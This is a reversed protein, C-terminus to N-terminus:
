EKSVEPGFLSAPPLPLLRDPEETSALNSIANLVQNEKRKNKDPFRQLNTSPRGLDNAKVM